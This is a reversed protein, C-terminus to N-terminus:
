GVSEPSRPLRLIQGTIYIPGFKDSFPQKSLILSQTLGSALVPLSVDLDHRILRSGIKM